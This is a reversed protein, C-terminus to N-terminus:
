ITFHLPTLPYIKHEKNYTTTRPKPYIAEIGMMRMLRQIRKRNVDSGKDNLTATIRRSGYFPYDTYIMDIQNMLKLDLDSIKPKYYFSSRSLDLLSSQRRLSLKFSIDLM